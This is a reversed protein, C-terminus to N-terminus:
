QDHWCGARRGAAQRVTCRAQDEKIRDAERRDQIDRQRAEWDENSKKMQSLDRDWRARTQEEESLPQKAVVEAKAATPCPTDQYVVRGDGLVSKNAAWCPGIAVLAVVAAFLQALHHRM